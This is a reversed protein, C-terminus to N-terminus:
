SEKGVTEPLDPGTQPLQKIHVDRQPFPIEIQAQALSKYIATNMYDQVRGRMEPAEIWCLLEFMLASDGFSRFRVRAEPQQCIHGQALAETSVRTLIRKVVDVDSGYAVGVPLRLRYKVYPGGSENTIKSNAITANPVIIEIDDRTLIRTSRIGIRTVQGRQGGDLVIYDGVKYPADALIFVGAFLNALTDRAAFGVAIGLIGASALWATVNVGWSILVFYTAGGILVVKVVIDFLPKTAQQVIHFREPHQAMWDLILLSVRIGFLLWILTVLTKILGSSIFGFPSPIDLLTLAVALGALSVSYFIPRHVLALIKDDVETRTHRTLRAVIRTIFWNAIRALLSSILIVALAQIYVNEGFVELAQKVKDM